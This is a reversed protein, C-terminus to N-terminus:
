TLVELKHMLRSIGMFSLGNMEVLSMCVVSLCKHDMEYLSHSNKCDWFLALPIDTPLGSMWCRNEKAFGFEMVMGSRRGVLVCNIPYIIVCVGLVIGLVTM